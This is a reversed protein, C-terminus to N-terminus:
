TFLLDILKRNAEDISAEWQTRLYTSTVDVTHHGLAAAIVERSIHLEEQCITAWSTRASGSSIEPFMATGESKKGPTRITGIKKLTKGVWNLYTHYDDYRELINLLYKQGKYKEIIALAEPEVKISILRKHKANALKQRYYEIRGDKINTLKSLDGFNIGAFMILLKFIDIAEEEGPNLCKYSFLQRLETSSFSKDKTEESKIEVQDKGFPYHHALGKKNAANFVARLDRLLRATTNVKQTKGCFDIFGNLFYEDIDDFILTKVDVSKSQCFETFKRLTSIYLGRTSATKGDAFKSFFSFFNEEKIRARKAAEAEASAKRAAVEPNVVPLLIDLCEKATKGVFDGAIEHQCIATMIKSMRATLLLNLPEKHPHNRVLNNAKDWQGDALRIGTSFYAATSDKRFGFYLSFPGNPKNRRDDLYFNVKLM